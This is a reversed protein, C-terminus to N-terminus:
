NFLLNVKKAFTKNKQSIRAYKYALYEWIEVPIIENLYANYFLYLSLKKDGNVTICHKKCITKIEQINKGLYKFATYNNKDIIKVGVALEKCIVVLICEKVSDEAPFTFPDDYLKKYEIKEDPLLTEENLRGESILKNLLKQKITFPITKYPSDNLGYHITGKRLGDLSLFSNGDPVFICNSM